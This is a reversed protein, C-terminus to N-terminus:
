SEIGYLSAANEFLIRRRVHEDEGGLGEQITEAINGYLCTPHPFDTEFLINDTGVSEFHQNADREFWYCAYVQRRFYESPKLDFHQGDSTDGQTLSYDAAELVFPVWGVGSEVSVFKLEPFRALVGSLLLDALQIGNNLFLVCSSLAYAPATGMTAVREPSFVGFDDGSGIHFSIPLGAEQAISWLPDWHRDGLLPLGFDQPAATFLIGKFDLKACREVEAAAAEVDWFPTAMIPIFRDPDPSIWDLQFDNYARVCALKLEPEPIRLFFQNGFGGVNPYLVQARCGVEDMYRIRASADYAGAHAKEFSPPHQPFKEPWGALATMGVPMMKQDSLFWCEEQNEDDWRVQPVRERWRSPVRSTWVDAPETIHTDADIWTEPPRDLM